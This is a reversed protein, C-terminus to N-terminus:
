LYLDLLVMTMIDLIIDIHNIKIILCNKESVKIKNVDISGIEFPKKNYYFKM